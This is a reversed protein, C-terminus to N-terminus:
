NTKSSSAKLLLEGAHTKASKNNENTLKREVITCLEGEGSGQPTSEIVAGKGHSEFAMTGARGNVFVAKKQAAKGAKPEPAKHNEAASEKLELIM